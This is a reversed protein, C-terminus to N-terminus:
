FIDELLLHLGHCLIEPDLKVVPDELPLYPHTCIHTYSVFLTCISLPYIRTGCRNFSKIDMTNNAIRSKLISIFRMQETALYYLMACVTFFHLGGWAHSLAEHLPLDDLSLRSVSANFHHIRSTLTYNYYGYPLGPM